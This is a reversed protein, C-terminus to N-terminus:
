KVPALAVYGDDPMLRLIRYHSHQAPSYTYGEAHEAPIIARTGCELVVTVDGNEETRIPFGIFEAETNNDLFELASTRASEKEMTYIFRQASNAKEVAAGVIKLQRNLNLNKPDRAALATKLTRQILLDTYKSTPHFFSVIHDNACLSNFIPESSYVACPLTAALTDCVFGYYPTGKASDAIEASRVAPDGDKNEAGVLQSLYDLTEEPVSGKGNFICPLKRDLMFKGVAEATFYGIERLMARSDPEAERRFSIIRGESDKEYVRRFYSCDLGGRATRRICFKAALEYMDDLINKISAYKERLLLVSSADGALQLQDIESYICTEVVRIVSEEMDVSIVNGNSDLDLFISIALKDGNEALDCLKIIESPLMGRSMFEGNIAALRQRAEIDLPSDECVYECVDAVHIGLQWGNGTRYLSYACETNKDPAEAFAFVTKGRLDARRALHSSTRMRAAAAAQEM